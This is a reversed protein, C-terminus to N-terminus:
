YRVTLLNTSIDFGYRGTEYLSQKLHNCRYGSHLHGGSRQQKYLSTRFKESIEVLKIILGVSRHDSESNSYKNVSTFHANM